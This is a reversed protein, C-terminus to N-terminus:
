GSLRFLIVLYDSLNLDARLGSPSNGRVKLGFLVWTPMHQRRVGPDASAIGGSEGAESELGYGAENLQTYVHLYCRAATLALMCTATRQQLLIKGHFLASRHHDRKSHIDMRMVATTSAHQEVALQIYGGRCVERHEWTSSVFIVSWSIAAAGGACCRRGMHACTLPQTLASDVNGAQVEICHRCQGDSLWHLVLTAGRPRRQLKVAANGANCTVLQCGWSRRAPIRM